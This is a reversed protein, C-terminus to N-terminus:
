TRQLSEPNRETREVVLNRTFSQDDVDIPQAIRNNELGNIQPLLHEHEAGYRVSHESDSVFQERPNTKCRLLATQINKIMEASYFVDNPAMNWASRVNPM